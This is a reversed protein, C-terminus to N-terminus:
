IAVFGKSTAYGRLIREKLEYRSKIEAEKYMGQGFIPDEWIGTHLLFSGRLNRPNRFFGMASSRIALVRSSNNFLSTPLSKLTPSYPKLHVFGMIEM